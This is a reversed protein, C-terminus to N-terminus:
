DRGWQIKGRLVDWGVIRWVEHKFWDKVGIDREELEGALQGFFGDDLPSSPPTLAPRYDASAGDGFVAKLMTNQLRHQEITLLSGRSTASPRRNATKSSQNAQNPKIFAQAQEFIWILYPAQAEMVEEVEESGGGGAAAQSQPGAAGWADEPGITFSRLGRGLSQLLFFLFGEMVEEHTAKTIDLHAMLVIAFDCLMLINETPPTVLTNTATANTSNLYAGHKCERKADKCNRCDPTGGDCKLHRERCAQCPRVRGSALFGDSTAISQQFAQARNAMKAPVTIPTRYTQTASLECVRELLDHAIKVFSWIVQGKVSRGEHLHDLSELGNLLCPFAQGIARLKSAVEEDPVTSAPVKELKYILNSSGTPQAIPLDEIAQVSSILRCINSSIRCLTEALARPDPRTQALLQQLIYLHHPFADETYQLRSNGLSPYSLAGTLNSESSGISNMLDALSQEQATLTVPNAANARTTRAHKQSRASSVEVLENAGRKRKRQSSAAPPLTTNPQDQATLRLELAAVKAQLTLRVEESKTYADRWYATADVHRSLPNARPGDQICSRL